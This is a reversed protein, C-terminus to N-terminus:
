DKVKFLVEAIQGTLMEDEPYHKYYPDQFNFTVGACEVNRLVQGEVRSNPGVIVVEICYKVDRKMSVPYDFLVDFGYYSPHDKELKVHLSTFAGTKDAMFIADENNSFNLTVSYDANKNGFLAVGYLM